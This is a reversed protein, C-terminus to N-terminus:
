AQPPAGTTDTPQVSEPLKPVQTTPPPPLKNIDNSTIRYKVQRIAQKPAVLKRTVAVLFREDPRADWVYIVCTRAIRDHWGLRRDNVLIAAFGLGLAVASVYYGLYRLLAQHIKIRGGNLPVVRLGLIGKGITQGAITWFFTYYVIIFGLGFLSYALPSSLFTFIKGLLPFWNGVEQLIPGLQLLDITTKIFWGTAVITVALLVIDIIFALLRSAFGAYEGLLNMDGPQAPGAPGPAAPLPAPTQTSM